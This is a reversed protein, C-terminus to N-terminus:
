GRVSPKLLRKGVDFLLPIIKVTCEFDKHFIGSLDGSLLGVNSVVNESPEQPLARLASPRCPAFFWGPRRGTSPQGRRTTKGKRGRHEQEEKEKASNEFPTTDEPSEKGWGERRGAGISEDQLTVDNAELAGQSASM